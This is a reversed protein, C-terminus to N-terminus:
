INKIFIKELTCQKVNMFTQTSRQDNEFEDRKRRINSKEQKNSEMEKNPKIEISLRGLIESISDCEDEKSFMMKMDLILNFNQNDYDDSDSYGENFVKSNMNDELVDDTKLKRYKSRREENKLNTM